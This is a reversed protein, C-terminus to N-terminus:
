PTALKPQTIDGLPIELALVAGARFGQNEKLAERLFSGVAADESDAIRYGLTQRITISTQWGEQTTKELTSCLAFLKDTM